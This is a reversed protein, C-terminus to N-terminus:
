ESARGVKKKLKEPIEDAQAPLPTKVVSLVAAAAVLAANRAFVRRSEVQSLSLSHTHTLSHRRKKPPTLPPTRTENNKNKNKIDRGGKGQQQKARLSQHAGEEGPRETQLLSRQKQHNGRRGYKSKNKRGRRRRRRRRRQTKRRNTRPEARSQNASIQLSRHILTRDVFKFSGSSGPSASFSFMTWSGPLSMRSVLGLVGPSRSPQARSPNGFCLLVFCLIYIMKKEDCSLSM